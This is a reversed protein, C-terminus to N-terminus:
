IGMGAFPLFQVIEGEEVAGRDHDLAILGDAWCLGRILGSGDNAFKEVGGLGDARGRLYEARGSKKRTSFRAQLPYSLPSTWDAGALRLLCPRAFILFTVFAAIPNGPLGFVPTKGLQALALPRGPKMAVRWLNLTGFSQLAASIHDEDGASAGGSTIVADCETGAKLLAARVLAADDGVIGYDLVEVPLKALLASLLPRNSDFVQGESLDRGAERLEHGTSILGVRLRKRVTLGAVGVSAAQALHQPQLITGESLARVGHDLDEGALRRNAGAKLGSGFRIQGGILDVDEDMVVSDAGDPMRAGTLIRVAESDGVHGAFPAGAAARGSLLRLSQEGTETLGSSSLAYGDVASNDHPPSSIQAIVDEALVRGLGDGLTVTEAGTVPEMRDRLLALADDVPTWEVGSPLAFCDNKLAM